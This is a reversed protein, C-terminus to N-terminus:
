STGTGAGVTFQTLGTNPPPKAGDEAGWAGQGQAAEQWAAGLLLRTIFQGVQLELARCCLSRHVLVWQARM